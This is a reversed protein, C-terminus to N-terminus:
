TQLMAPLNKVTQTVLSARTFHPQYHDAGTLGTTLVPVHTNLSAACFPVCLLGETFLLWQKGSSHELTGLYRQHYLVWRGICSVYPVCTPDRPQSSRSSSPTAVWELTRAQLIGLVSSVPPSCDVPNCLTLCLQVDSCVGVGKQAIANERSQCM